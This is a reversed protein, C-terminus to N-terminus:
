ELKVAFSEAAGCVDPIAENELEFM